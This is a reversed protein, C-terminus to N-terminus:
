TFADRLGKVGTIYYYAPYLLNNQSQSSNSDFTIFSLKCLSISLLSIFKRVLKRIQGQPKYM